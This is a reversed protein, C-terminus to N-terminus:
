SVPVLLDLAQGKLLGTFKRLCIYRQTTKLTCSHMWYTEPSLPPPAVGTGMGFVATLDELASPVQANARPSYTTAPIIKLGSAFAEPKQKDKELRWSSVDLRQGKIASPNAPRHDSYPQGLHGDASPPAATRQGRRRLTIGSMSLLHAM